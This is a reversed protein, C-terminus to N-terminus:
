DVISPSLRARGGISSTTRCSGSANNRVKKYSAVDM